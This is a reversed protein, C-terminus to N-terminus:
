ACPQRRRGSRHRHPGAVPALEELSKLSRFSREVMMLQKYAAAVDEKTLKPHSTRLVYKGDYREDERIRGRDLRLSGDSLRRLHRGYAPHSYLAGAEKTGPGPPNSLVEEVHAVISERVKLDHEAEQPNYCIVYRVGDAQVEKLHLNEAIEQYRGATALVGDPDTPEPRFAL